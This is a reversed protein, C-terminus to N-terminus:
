SKIVLQKKTVLGGQGLIHLLFKISRIVRQLQEEDTVVVVVSVELDQKSCQGQDSFLQTSFHPQKQGAPKLVFRIRSCVLRSSSCFKNFLQGREILNHLKSCYGITRKVTEVASAVNVHSRSVSFRKSMWNDFRHCATQRNHSRIQSNM